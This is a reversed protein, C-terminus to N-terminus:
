NIENPRRMKLKKSSLKKGEINKIVIDNENDKSNLNKSSGSNIIIRNKKREKEQSKATRQRYKQM